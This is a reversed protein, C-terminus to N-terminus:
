CRANRRATRSDFGASAGVGMANTPTSGVVDAKRQCGRWPSQFIAPSLRCLSLCRLPIGM